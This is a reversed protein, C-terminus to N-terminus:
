QKLHGNPFLVLKLVKRHNYKKIQNTSMEKRIKKQSKKQSKKMKKM